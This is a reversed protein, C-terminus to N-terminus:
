LQVNELLNSTGAMSLTNSISALNGQAIMNTAVLSLSHTGAEDNGSPQLLITSLSLLAAFGAAMAIPMWAPWSGKRSTDGSLVTLPPHRAAQEEQCVAVLKATFDKRLAMNKGQLVSGLVLDFSEQEELFDRCSACTYLHEDMDAKVDPHLSGDLREFVHECCDECTMM